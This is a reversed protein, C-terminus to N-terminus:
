GPHIGGARVRHELEAALDAISRGDTPVALHARGYHRERESLLRRLTGLPDPGALLPREGPAAGARRLAEGPSVQLWVLLTGPALLEPVGPNAMWGGGASLVLETLGAVARTAERERRRFGAEGETAFIEAVTRGAARELDRDLDRHEWGLRAALAAGVASKGAGMLGVLVVRAPPM